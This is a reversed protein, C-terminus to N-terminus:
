EVSGLALSSPLNDHPSPVPTCMCDAYPKCIRFWVNNQHIPGILLQQRQFITKEKKELKMPIRSM